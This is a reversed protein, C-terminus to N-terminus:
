DKRIVFAQPFQAALRKRSRQARPLTNGGPVQVRYFLQEGHQFPVTVPAMGRSSLEGKLRRANEKHHFSGVQVYFKGKRFDPYPLFRKIKRGKESVTVTEGLATIEVKATGKKLMGIEGAAKKSLDIIRGKVFPGRDNIRVLTERNNELNHVLVHTNMPLTKHAATDSFMNYTEGNSTTRGHFPPGYWSALGKQRFGRADPIPYYTKGHIEYARQTAKVERDAPMTKHEHPREFTPSIVKVRGCGNLGALVTLAAAICIPLMAKEKINPM